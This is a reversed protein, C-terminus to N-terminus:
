ATGTDPFVVSRMPLSAFRKTFFHFANSRDDHKCQLFDVMVKKREKLEIRTSQLPSRMENMQRARRSSQQTDAKKM